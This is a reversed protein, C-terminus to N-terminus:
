YKIISSLIYLDITFRKWTRNSVKFISVSVKFDNTFPSSKYIDKDTDQITILKKPKEKELADKVLEKIDERFYKFYSMQKTKISFLRNQHKIIEINDKDLRLIPIHVISCFIFLTYGTKVLVM